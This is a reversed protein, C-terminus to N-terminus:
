KVNSFRHKRTGSAFDQLSGSNGSNFSMDGEEEESAQEYDHEIQARIERPEFITGSGARPM